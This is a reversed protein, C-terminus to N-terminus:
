TNITSMRRKKALNWSHLMYNYSKKEINEFHVTNNYSLMSLPYISEINGTQVM